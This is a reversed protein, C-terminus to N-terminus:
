AATGVAVVKTPQTPVQDAREVSMAFAATDAYPIVLAVSRSEKTAAVNPLATVPTPSGDRPSGRTSRVGSSRTM